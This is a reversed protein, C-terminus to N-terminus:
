SLVLSSKVCSLTSQLCSYFIIYCGIRIDTHFPFVARETREYREPPWLLGKAISRIVSWMRIRSIAFSDAALAVTSKTFSRQGSTSSPCNSTSCSDRRTSLLTRRRHRSLSRGRCTTSAPESLHPLDTWSASSIRLGALSSNM